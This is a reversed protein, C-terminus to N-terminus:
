ESFLLPTAKFGPTLNCSKLKATINYNRVLILLYPLTSKETCLPESINQGKNPQDLKPEQVGCNTPLIDRSYQSVNLAQGSKQGVHETCLAFCSKWQTEM